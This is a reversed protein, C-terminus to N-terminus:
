AVGTSPGRLFELDCRFPFHRVWCHTPTKRRLVGDSDLIMPKGVRVGSAIKETAIATRRTFDEVTNGSKTGFLTGQLLKGIGTLNGSGDLQGPIINGLGLSKSQNFLLGSGNVFLQREVTKLEGLFLQAIGGTGNATLADFVKGTEQKYNELEKQQLELYSVERDFKAEDTEKQYVLRELLRRYRQIVSQLLRPEPEATPM